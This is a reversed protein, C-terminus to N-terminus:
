KLESSKCSRTFSRVKQKAAEKYIQLVHTTAKPRRPSSSMEIERSLPPDKSIRAQKSAASVSTGAERKMKKELQKRLYFFIKLIKVILYSYWMSQCFSFKGNKMSFSQQGTWDCDMESKANKEDLRRFSEM